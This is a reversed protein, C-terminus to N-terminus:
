QIGTFKLFSCRSASPGRVCSDSQNGGCQLLLARADLEFVGAPAWRGGCIMGASARQAGARREKRSGWEARGKRRRKDWVCDLAAPAATVPALVSLPWADAAAALIRFMPM